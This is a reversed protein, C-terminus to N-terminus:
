DLLQNLKNDRVNEVTPFKYGGIEWDDALIQETSIKYDRIEAGPEFHFTFRGSKDIFLHAKPYGDVIFWSLCRVKRGQKLGILADSFTM